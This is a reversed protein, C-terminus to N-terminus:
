PISSLRRSSREKELVPEAEHGHPIAFLRRQRELLMVVALEIAPHSTTLTTVSRCRWASLAPSPDSSHRLLSPAMQSEDLIEKYGPWDGWM